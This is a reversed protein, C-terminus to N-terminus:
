LLHSLQRIGLSVSPCLSFASCTNTFGLANSFIKFHAVVDKFENSFLRKLLMKNAVSQCKLPIAMARASLM